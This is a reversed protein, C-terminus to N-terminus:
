GVAAVKNGEKRKGDGGGEREISVGERETDRSLSGKFFYARILLSGRQQQEKVILVM